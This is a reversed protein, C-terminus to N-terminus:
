GSAAASEAPAAPEGAIIAEYGAQDTVDPLVISGDFGGCFAERCCDACESLLAPFTM